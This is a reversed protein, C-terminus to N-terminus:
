AMKQSTPLRFFTEMSSYLAQIRQVVEEDLSMLVYGRAKLIEVAETGL